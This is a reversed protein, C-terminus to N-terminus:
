GSIPHLSTQGSILICCLHFTRNARLLPSLVFKTEFGLMEVTAFDSNTYIYKLLQKTRKINRKHPISLFM